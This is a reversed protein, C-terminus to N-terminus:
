RKTADLRENRRAKVRDIISAHSATSSTGGLNINRRTPGFFDNNMISLISADLDAAGPNDGCM